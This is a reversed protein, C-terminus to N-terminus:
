AHSEHHTLVPVPPGMGAAAATSPAAPAEPTCVSGQRAAAKVEPGVAMSREPGLCGVAM